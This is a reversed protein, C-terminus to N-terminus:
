QRINKTNMAPNEANVWGRIQQTGSPETKNTEGDIQM